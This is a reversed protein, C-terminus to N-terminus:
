RSRRLKNERHVSHTWRFDPGIGNLYRMWKQLVQPAILKAQEETLCPIAYHVGALQPVLMWREADNDRALHFLIVERVRGLQVGTREGSQIRSWKLNM